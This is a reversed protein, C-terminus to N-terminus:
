LAKGFSGCLIIKHTIETFILKYNRSITLM